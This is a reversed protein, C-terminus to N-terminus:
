KQIMTVRVQLSNLLRLIDAASLAINKKALLSHHDVDPVETQFIKEIVLPSPLKEKDSSLHVNLVQVGTRFEDLTLRGISRSHNDEITDSFSPFASIGIDKGIVDFLEIVFRDPSLLASITGDTQEDDSTTGTLSVNMKPNNLSNNVRFRRLNKTFDRTGPPTSNLPWGGLRIVMASCNDYAGLQEANNVISIAGTTPDKCLKVVDVIEQNTLTNTVGDTVLVLFADRSDLIRTTIWPDATLGCGKGDNMHKLRAVGIARSNAAMGMLAEEGFSDASIFGGQSLIRAQEEKVSPHHDVTLQQARGTVNDCM